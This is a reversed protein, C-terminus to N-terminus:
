MDKLIVVTITPQWTYGVPKVQHTMSNVMGGVEFNIRLEKWLIGDLNNQEKSKFKCSYSKMTKEIFKTIKNKYKNQRSNLYEM